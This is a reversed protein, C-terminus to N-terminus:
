RSKKRKRNKIFSFVLLLVILLAVGMIFYKVNEM